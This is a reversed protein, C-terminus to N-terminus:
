SYGDESLHLKDKQFFKRDVDEVLPYLYHLFAEFTGIIQWQNDNIIM